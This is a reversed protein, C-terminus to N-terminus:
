GQEYKFIRDVFYQHLREQAYNRCFQEFGANTSWNTEVGFLDLLGILKLTENNQKIRYLAENTRAVIYDFIHSYLTQMFEDRVNLAQQADMSVRVTEDGLIVRKSKM